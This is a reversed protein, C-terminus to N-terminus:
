QGTSPGLLFAILAVLVLTIIFKVRMTLFELHNRFHPCFEEEM